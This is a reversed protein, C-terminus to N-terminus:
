PRPQPLLPLVEITFDDSVDPFRPIEGHFRLQWILQNHGTSFSHMARRPIRAKGSGSRIAATDNLEAIVQSLLVNTDTSTNTGRTYTATEKAELTIKLSRIRQVQGAFEWSLTIEDGIRV